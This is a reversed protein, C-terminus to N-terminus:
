CNETSSVTGKGLLNSKEDFPYKRKDVISFNIQFSNRLNFYIIDDGNEWYNTRDIPFELKQPSISDSKGLQKELSGLIRYYVFQNVALAHTDDLWNIAIVKRDEGM